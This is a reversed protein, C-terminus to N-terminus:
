GSGDEVQGGWAGNVAEIMFYTDQWRDGSIRFVEQGNADIVKTGSAHDLRWPPKGLPYTPPRPPFTASEEICDILTPPSGSRGSQICGRGYVDMDAIGEINWIGYVDV